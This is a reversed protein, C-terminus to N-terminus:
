ENRVVEFEIIDGIISCESGIIGLDYATMNYCGMRPSFAVDGYFIIDDIQYRTKGDVKDIETITIHGRTAGPVRFPLLLKGNYNTPSVFYTQMINHRKLGDFLHVDFKDSLDGRYEALTLGPLRSTNRLKYVTPTSM